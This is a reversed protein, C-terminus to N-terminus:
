DRGSVEMTLPPPVAAGGRGRQLRELQAMARFLQREMKTEYRLIKDLVEVSPLGEAARRSEEEKEEHEECASEQWSLHRLERDLYQFVQERHKGRLADPELGEPNQVLWTRLKELESSYRSPKGCIFASKIAAESM